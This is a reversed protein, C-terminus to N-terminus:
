LSPQPGEVISLKPQPDLPEHLRSSAPEYIKGGAHKLRDSFSIGRADTQFTSIRNKVNCCDKKNSWLNQFDWFHEEGNGIYCTTFQIGKELSKLKWINYYHGVEKDSYHWDRPSKCVNIKDFFPRLSVNAVKEINNIAFSSLRAFGVLIAPIKHAAVADILDTTSYDFSPVPGEWKFNPNTYYGDPFQPFLPNVRVTTWFGARSLTELAQLRKKASPAGPELKHNLNDDISSISMQVSCLDSRLLTMYDSHAVLDSHTFIIYPYDYFSLIKLLEQTVKYRKDMLMFSDSMSGIRLPIRKELISRWKSKKDTEFVTYFLKRFENVDAPFPIPNNWMGHVTLEAKAYCYVCEHICGRGYTDVEFTYLCQQCTPHANPLRFAKKFVVGGFIKRDEYRKELAPYISYDFSSKYRSVLDLKKAESIISDSYKSVIPATSPTTLENEM